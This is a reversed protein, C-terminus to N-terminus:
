SHTMIVYTTLLCSDAHTMTVHTMLGSDTHTMPTEARTLYHTMHSFPLSVHGSRLLSNTTPTTASILICSSYTAANEVTAACSEHPVTWGKMGRTTTFVSGVGHLSM